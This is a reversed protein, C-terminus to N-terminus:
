YILVDSSIMCSSDKCGIGDACIIWNFGGSHTLHRDAPYNM